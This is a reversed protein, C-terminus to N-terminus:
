LYHYIIVPQGIIDVGVCYEVVIQGNDKTKAM